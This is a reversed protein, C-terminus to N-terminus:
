SVTVEVKMGARPPRARSVRDRLTGAEEFTYELEGSQGPQVTLADEAEHDGHGVDSDEPAESM